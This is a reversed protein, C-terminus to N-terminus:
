APQERRGVRFVPRCAFPGIVYSCDLISVAPGVADVSTPTGGIGRWESRLGTAISVPDRTIQVSTHRMEHRSVGVKNHQCRITNLNAIHTM